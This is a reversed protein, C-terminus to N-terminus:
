SRVGRDILRLAEWEMEVARRGIALLELDQEGALYRETQQLSGVAWRVNGMVEWYHVHAPVVTRGSAREYAAYWAARQAFGGVPRDIQGFRWDRVCVWAIDEYPSGWRAFEWDLVATLGTPAVMFNGVRFDGHVLCTTRDAPTNAALWRLALELAPRPEPLDSIMARLERVAHAAPDYEPHLVRAADLLTTHESPTVAHIRAAVDALEDVLRTRADALEPSRLVRRGIADGPVWDLFYAHSGPRVLDKTLWQARPTRVGRAAATRIVEYERARDLSGLLSGRADSRMVFRRSTETGADRLTVDIRVNEQCAGGALPEVATVDVHPGLHDRLVETVRRRLEPVDM